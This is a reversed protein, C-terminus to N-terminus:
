EKRLEERITELIDNKLSEHEDERQETTSTSEKKDDVIGAILLAMAFVSFAVMVVVIMTTVKQKLTKVEELIVDSKTEVTETCTGIEETSEKSHEKLAQTLDTMPLNQIYNGINNQNTLMAQCLDRTEKSADKLTDFLKLLLDIEAM